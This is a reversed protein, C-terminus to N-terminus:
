EVPTPEHKTPSRRNALGLRILHSRKRIVARATTAWDDYWRKLNTLHRRREAASLHPRAAPLRPAPRLAVAVLGALRAREEKTIGRTALGEVFQRDSERTSERAPDTGNELSDIRGLYTALGQVSGAGQGAKLGGAFVYALQDPFFRTGFARTRTFLSEDGDDIAAAAARSEEAEPSDREPTGDLHLPLVAILERTAAALDDDALGAEALTTRIEPVAAIAVLMQTVKEPTEELVEDSFTPLDAM